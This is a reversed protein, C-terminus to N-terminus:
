KYVCNPELFLQLGLPNLYFALIALSVAVFGVLSMLRQLYIADSLALAQLYRNHGIVNSHHCSCWHIFECSSLPDHDYRIRSLKLAQLTEQFRPKFYRFLRSQRFFIYIHLGSWLDIQCIYLCNMLSIKGSNLTQILSPLSNSVNGTTAAVAIEVQDLSSRM